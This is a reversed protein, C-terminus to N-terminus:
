LMLIAGLAILGAGFAHKISFTEALFLVALVFVFVVSLRDLAAVGSAPGVKLATFYFLWSLAGAIGSLVIFLTTKHSIVDSFSWKGLAFAVVVLFVTMVIARLATAFTTDIDKLGIKGFVAVLAAFLASLLAYFIWTPM